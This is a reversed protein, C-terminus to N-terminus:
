CPRRAASGHHERHEAIGSRLHLLKVAPSALGTADTLNARSQVDRRHVLRTPVRNQVRLTASVSGIQHKSRELTIRALRFPNGDASTGVISRRRVTWIPRVDS